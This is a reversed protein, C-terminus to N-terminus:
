LTPEQTGVGQSGSPHEIVATLQRELGVTIEQFDGKTHRSERVNM